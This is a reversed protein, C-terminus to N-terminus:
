ERLKKKMCPATGNDKQIGTLPQRLIKTYQKQFEGNKLGPEM